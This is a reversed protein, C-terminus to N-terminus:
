VVGAIERGGSGGEGKGVVAGGSDHLFERGDGLNVVGVDDRRRQQVAGAVSECANPNRNEAVGGGALVGRFGSQGTQRGAVGAELGRGNVGGARVGWDVPGGGAREVFGLVVEGKGIVQLPHVAAVGDRESALHLPQLVVARWGVGAAVGAEREGIVSGCAK